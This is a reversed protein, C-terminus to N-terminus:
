FNRFYFRDNGAVQLLPCGLIASPSCRRKVHYTCHQPLPHGSPDTVFYETCNASLIKSRALSRLARMGSTHFHHAIGAYGLLTEARRPPGDKTRPTTAGRDCREAISGRRPEGRDCIQAEWNCPINQSPGKIAEGRLDPM